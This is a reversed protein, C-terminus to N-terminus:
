RVCEGTFGTEIMGKELVDHENGTLRGEGLYTGKYVKRLDVDRFEVM